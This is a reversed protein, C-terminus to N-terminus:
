LILNEDDADDSDEEPHEDSVVDEDVKVAM